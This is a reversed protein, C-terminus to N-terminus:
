RVSTFMYRFWHEELMWELRPHPVRPYRTSVAVGDTYALTEVVGKTLGTFGPGVTVKGFGAGVDAAVPTRVRRCVSFKLTKRSYATTSAAHLFTKIDSMGGTKNRM